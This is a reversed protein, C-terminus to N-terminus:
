DVLEIVEEIVEEVKLKTLVVTISDESQIGEGTIWKDGNNGQFINGPTLDSITPM